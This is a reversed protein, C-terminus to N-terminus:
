YNKLSDILSVVKNKIMSNTRTFDRDKTENIDKIKWVIVKKGYKKYRTFISPPVDNAVLVFIDQKNVIDRVM